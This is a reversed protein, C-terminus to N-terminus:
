SDGLIRFRLKNFYEEKLNIQSKEKLNILENMLVDVEDFNLNDVLKIYNLDKIWEYTGIVKNDLSKTVICPTKTIACFVMGHLRDTIVVKSNSFKSLMDELEDKRTTKDVYKNIVTDYEFINKYKTKLKDLLVEKQNVVISEKDNRLCTMIIKRNEPNDKFNDSLYLVIDPNDIINCNIFEEKMIKFSFKERAIITLDKHNNYVDKTKNLEQKGDNDKTFSITQTMSIVKNEPFQEIVFRRANEESIYLNGMNGGGILFILDDKNLIMKITKAYKYIEDRYFELIEYEKFNEKLYKETAYAIAQDGMNGHKPTLLHLIKKKHKYEKFRRYYILNRINKIRDTNNKGIGKVVLSKFKTMIFFVGRMESNNNQMCM